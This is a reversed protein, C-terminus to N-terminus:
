RKVVRFKIQLTIEDCSHLCNQAWVTWEIDADTYANFDWGADDDKKLVDQGWEYKYNKPDSLTFRMANTTRGGLRGHTGEVYLNEIHHWDETNKIDKEAVYARANVESMTTM